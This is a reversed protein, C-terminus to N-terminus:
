GGLDVAIPDKRTLMLLFLGSSVRRLSHRHSYFGTQVQIQRIIPNAPNFVLADSDSIVTTLILNEDLLGVFGPESLSKYPTPRSSM